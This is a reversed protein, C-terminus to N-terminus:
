GYVNGTHPCLYRAARGDPGLNCWCKAQNLCGNWYRVLIFPLSLSCRQKLPCHFLKLSKKIPSVEEAKASPRLKHSMPFEM